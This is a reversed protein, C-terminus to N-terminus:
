GLGLLPSLHSKRPPTRVEDEVFPELIIGGTPLFWCRPGSLAGDLVRSPGRVVERYFFRSRCNVLSGIACLRLPWSVGAWSHHLCRRFNLLRRKQFLSRRAALFSVLPQGFVAGGCSRLVLCVIFVAGAVSAPFASFREVGLELAAIGVLRRRARVAFGGLVAM